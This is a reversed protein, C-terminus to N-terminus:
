LSGTVSDAGRAGTEVMGDAVSVRDELWGALNALAVDDPFPVVALVDEDRQRQLLGCLAGDDAFQAGMGAIIPRYSREPLVVADVM